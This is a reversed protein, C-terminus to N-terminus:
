KCANSARTLVGIRHIQVPNFLTLLTFVCPWCSDVMNCDFRTNTSVASRYAGSIQFAPPIKECVRHKRSSRGVIPSRVNHSRDPVRRQLPLKRKNPRQPSYKCRQESSMPRVSAIDCRHLSCGDELALNDTGLAAKSDDEMRTWATSPTSGRPKTMLTDPIHIYHLM